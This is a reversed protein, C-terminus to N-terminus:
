QAQKIKNRKNRKNDDKQLFYTVIGMNFSVCCVSKRLGGMNREEEGRARRERQRLGEQCCGTIEM